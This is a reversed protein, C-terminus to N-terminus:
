GPDVIAVGEPPTSGEALSITGFPKGSAIMIMEYMKRPSERTATDNLVYM